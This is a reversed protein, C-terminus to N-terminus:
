FIYKQQTKNNTNKKKIELKNQQKEIRLTIIYM